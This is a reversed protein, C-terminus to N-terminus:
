RVLQDVSKNSWKNDSLSSSHGDLVSTNLCMVTAPTVLVCINSVFRPLYKTLNLMLLRIPNDVIHLFYLNVINIFNDM